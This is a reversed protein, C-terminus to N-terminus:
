NAFYQHHLGRLGAGFVGVDSGVALFNTGMKQYNNALERDFSLIGSAKGSDIISKLSAVVVEQVESIGANGLHGMDAALDSPGIFVGDVGDVLLIDELADVGKVTEIQVLICVQENATALYNSRSNFDSARALASGVGRVGHPPYRLSRVVESAQEASEIMPVLFSQVGIDLYQKLLVRDDSPPRVVPLSKYGHIARLQALITRLDNPGHEGDILLWDFGVQACLESTYPEALGLWLGILQEDRALAAKFQNIAASM